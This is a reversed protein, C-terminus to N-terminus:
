TKSSEIREIRRGYLITQQLTGETSFVNFNAPQGVATEGLRELGLMRAPNRSALRVATALSAGTFRQLNEVARDMTLVSGALTEIGSALDSTSLCRGDAVTVELEGLRYDGDPMGTASIGDTVLIALEDGKARLWLRIFEPAVHIGDCILEAYLLNSDLVVGAIGPERHDLRRMANFTHTASHAGAAIAARTQEANADSHGLSVHTGSSTAYQILDLAGSTEPAITLLRIHGRAAQQMQEFLPVSPPQIDAPPHVGRKAHSLFPGELHIGVPRATPANGSRAAAEIADAIGELGRLTSDVPATVTTALYNAVGKTALFRSIGAFAQPTGQMADHGAAGHVHIDFFAGTLTTDEANATGSEISVITGESDILIRPHDIVTQATVLRRAALLNANM